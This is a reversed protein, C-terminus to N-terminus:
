GSRSLTVACLLVIIGLLLNLRPIWRTLTASGRYAQQAAASHYTTLVLMLAVLVLKISLIRGYTTESGPGQGLAVLNVMGTGILVVISAWVIRQFRRAARKLLEQSGAQNNLIGLSPVLVLSLFAMGGIWVVAALMHLWVFVTHLM